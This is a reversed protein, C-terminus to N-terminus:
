LVKKYHFYFPLMIKQLLKYKTPLVKELGISCSLVNFPQNVNIIVYFLVKFTFMPALFYWKVM